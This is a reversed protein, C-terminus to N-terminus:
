AATLQSRRVKGFVKEASYYQKKKALTYILTLLKKSIVVLAQVKKLPNVARTKLSEYLEEIEPNVAVATLAMQYLVKRLGKRGRKSICSGSKNKGSSDEVLNYGALRCLQRPDDFRLPDGLEGLCVALSEVGVGKISLLYEAIGPAQLVKAMEEEIRSLQRNALELSELLVQLKCRAAAVGYDVGVSVQAADVLMQARKRGVTKKVAKKIEALVGEVGLELIYQPFPCAKLTQMAVKGKFPHKFVTTFEPFYEDIVATITNELANKQRNVSNRATALVRLDAYVDHLLYAESYRGDKVLRAITLADKRDSKTQSNDDLEKAKKRHYPNVLVVRIHEQKMLWNALAKWYHGTPEMGVVTDEFSNEKSIQRIKALIAEFGTGDNRFYMAKGCEVGRCDVFRAWQKEKAIDIGVVLTRLTIAEIKKNLQSKNKISYFRRKKRHTQTRREKRMKSQSIKSQM